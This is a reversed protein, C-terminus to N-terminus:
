ELVQSQSTDSTPAMKHPQVRLRYPRGSGTTNPNLYITPYGARTQRPNSFQKLSTILIILQQSLKIGSFFPSLFPVQIVSLCLWFPGRSFGLRPEWAASPLYFCPSIPWPGFDGLTAWPRKANLQAGEWETFAGEEAGRGLGTGHGKSTSM